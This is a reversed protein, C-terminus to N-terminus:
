CLRHRRTYPSGLREVHVIELAHRPELAAVHRPDHAALQEGEATRSRVALTKATVLVHRHKCGLVGLGQAREADRTDHAEVLRLAIVAAREQVGADAV